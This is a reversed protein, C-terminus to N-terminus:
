RQDPQRVQMWVGLSGDHGGVVLSRDGLLLCLATVPTSGITDIEPPGVTEEGLRWWLLEGRGTGGYLNQGDGDVLLETLPYPTPVADRTLSSTSEGSFSETMVRRVVVLSHDALQAAVVSSGDARMTATFVQIPRHRPDVELTIPPEIVPTIVRTVDAYT